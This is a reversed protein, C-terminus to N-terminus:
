NFLNIIEVKYPDLKFLFGILENRKNIHKILNHIITAKSIIKIQKLHYILVRCFKRLIKKNIVSNLRYKPFRDCSKKKQM